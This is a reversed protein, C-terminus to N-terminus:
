WVLSCCRRAEREFWMRRLMWPSFHEMNKVVLKFFDSMAEVDKAKPGCGCSLNSVMDHVGDVETEVGAGLARVQDSRRLRMLGLLAECKCSM